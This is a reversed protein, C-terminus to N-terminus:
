KVWQIIESADKLALQREILKGSPDFLLLEAISAGHEAILKDGEPTNIKAILFFVQDNLQDRAKNMQETQSISVQLNPDYVFVLSPKGTGIEEHTMKISKPMMTLMLALLLVISIIVGISVWLKTRTPQANRKDNIVFVEKNTNTGVQGSM